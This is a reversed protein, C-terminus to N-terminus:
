HWLRSWCERKYVSVVREREREAGLTELGEWEGGEREIMTGGAKLATVGGFYVHPSFIRITLLNEPPPPDLCFHLHLSSRCM